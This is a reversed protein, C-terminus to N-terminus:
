HKAERRPASSWTTRCVFRLVWPRHRIHGLSGNHLLRIHHMSEEICIYPHVAGLERWRKKGKLQPRQLCSDEKPASRDHELDERAVIGANTTRLEAGYLLMTSSAVGLGETPLLATRLVAPDQSQYASDFFVHSTIAVTNM